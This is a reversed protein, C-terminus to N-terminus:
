QSQGPRPSANLAASDAPPHLADNAESTSTFFTAAGQSFTPHSSEEHGNSLSQMHKAIEGKEDDSAIRFFLATDAAESQTKVLEKWDRSDRAKKLLDLLKEIHHTDVNRCVL